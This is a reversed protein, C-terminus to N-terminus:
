RIHCGQCLEQWFRREGIRLGVGGGVAYPDHCTCCGLKGDFLPLRPDSETKLEKNAWAAEGYDIGIPHSLGNDPGHRYSSAISSTYAPTGPTTHCNMCFVSLDDLAPRTDRIDLDRDGYEMRVTTLVVFKAVGHARDMVHRRTEVGQPTLDDSHCAMCGLRGPVGARLLYTRKGTAPHMTQMHPDHCTACTLTVSSRVPFRHDYSLRTTTNVFHSVPSLGKHCVLCLDNVASVFRYPRPDGSQPVTFHCNFCDSSTFGHPSQSTDVAGLYLLAAPIAILAAGIVHKKAKQRHLKLSLDLEWDFLKIRLTRKLIRRLM